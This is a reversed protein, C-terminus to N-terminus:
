LTLLKPFMTLLKQPKIRESEQVVKDSYYLIIVSSGCMWFVVTYPIVTIFNLTICLWFFKHMFAFTVPFFCMYFGFWQLYMQHPYRLRFYRLTPVTGEEVEPVRILVRELLRELLRLWETVSTSCHIFNAWKSCIGDSILGQWGFYKLIPAIMMRVWEILSTSCHILNVLKFRTNNSILGWRVLPYLGRAIGDKKEARWTLYGRQEILNVLLYLRKAIRDKRNGRWHAYSRELALKDNGIDPLERVWELREKSILIFDDQSKLDDIYSVGSLFKIFGILQKTIWARLVKTRRIRVQGMIKQVQKKTLNLGILTKKGVESGKFEGYQKQCFRVCCERAKCFEQYWGSNERRFELCWGKCPAVVKKITWASVSEKRKSIWKIPYCEILTISEVLPFSFMRLQADGNLSLFVVLFLSGIGLGMVAGENIMNSVNVVEVVKDRGIEEEIVPPIMTGGFIYNVNNAIVNGIASGIGSVISYINEFSSFADILSERAAKLTEWSSSTFPIVKESCDNKLFSMIIASGCVTLNFMLGSLIKTGTSLSIPQSTIALTNFKGLRKAFVKPNMQAQLYANDISIGKKVWEDFKIPDLDEQDIEVYDISAKQKLFSDADEREKRLKPFYYNFLSNSLLNGSYRGYRVENFKKDVSSVYTEKRVKGQKRKDESSPVQNAVRDKRRLSESRSLRRKLKEQIKGGRVKEHQNSLYRSNKFTETELQELRLLASTLTERVKGILEQTSRDLKSLSLKKEIEDIVKRLFEGPENSLEQRSVNLLISADQYMSDSLISIEKDLYRLETYEYLNHKGQKVNGGGKQLQDKQGLLDLWRCAKNYLDQYKQYEWHNLYKQFEWYNDQFNGLFKIQCRSKSDDYLKVLCYLLAQRAQRIRAKSNDQSGLKLGHCVQILYLLLTQWRHEKDQYEQYGSSELKSTDFVKILYYNVQYVHKWSLVSEELNFVKYQVLCRNAWCDALEKSKNLWYNQNLRSVLQSVFEKFKKSSNKRFKNLRRYSWYNRIDQTKKYVNVGGSRSGLLPISAPFTEVPNDLGKKDGTYASVSDKERKVFFGKSIKSILSLFSM